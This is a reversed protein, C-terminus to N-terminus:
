DNREQELAQIRKEQQVIYLTLEEVKELLMNDMEGVGYGQEAFEQASPVRPLHKNEKIFLEVENLPLLQYGHEFVYDASPVSEKIEVEKAYIKNKVYANGNVQLDAQVFTDDKLYIDGTHTASCGRGADLIIDAAEGERGKEVELTAGIVCYVGGPEIIADGNSQTNYPASFAVGSIVVSFVVVASLPNKM